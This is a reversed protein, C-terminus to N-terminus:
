TQEHTEVDVAGKLDSVRRARDRQCQNAFELPVTVEYATGGVAGKHLLLIQPSQVPDVYIEDPVLMVEVGNSLGEGTPPEDMDAVGDNVSLICQCSAEGKPVRGLDWQAIRHRDKSM